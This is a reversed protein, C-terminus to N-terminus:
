RMAQCIEIELHSRDHCCQLERNWRKSVILAFCARCCADFNENTARVGHLENKGERCSSPFRSPGMLRSGSAPMSLYRQLEKSLQWDACLTEEKCAIPEPKQLCRASMEHGHVRRLLTDSLAARSSIEIHRLHLAHSHSRRTGDCDFLFQVRLCVYKPFQSM